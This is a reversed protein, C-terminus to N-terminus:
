VGSHFGNAPRLFDAAATGTFASRGALLLEYMIAGFTFADSRANIARGAGVRSM